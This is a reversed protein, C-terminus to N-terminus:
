AADRRNSIECFEAAAPLAATAEKGHGIQVAAFGDFFGYPGASTYRSGQAMEGDVLAAEKICVL